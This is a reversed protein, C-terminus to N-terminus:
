SNNLCETSHMKIYFFFLIDNSDSSLVQCLNSTYVFALEGISHSKSKCLEFFVGMKIDIYKKKPKVKREIRLSEM